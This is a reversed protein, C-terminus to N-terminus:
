SIAPALIGLRCGAAQSVGADKQQAPQIFKELPYGARALFYLDIYDKIEARSVVTCVKLTDVVIGEFRNKVQSIQPVIEKVFDVIVSEQNRSLRYRHFQPATQLSAVSANLRTGTGFGILLSIIVFIKM